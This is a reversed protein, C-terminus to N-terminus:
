PARYAHVPPGSFAKWRVRFVRGERLSASRKWYGRANTRVRALEEFGKGKDRFEVTVTTAGTAPRVLGWLAVKRAGKQDAVLPLRFGDYALKKRGNAFRLGSEFGGFRDAGSRQLDDRMLYQSFAKVRPNDYAIKESIARYENQRAQSVGLIPDPTSQIGFETLYIPLRRQKSYRDLAKTLRSLVGITVDVKKPRYFPGERTTYPHHAWGDLEVRAGKFFQKVFTIPAVINENGRPSTEGALITDGGNGSKQLGKRAAEYLGRYLTPSFPKGKAYQPLLFQPQNPENWITWTDVFDRYRTGAAQVFRGFRTADPKFLHGSKSATAWRPVPGTVTPIVEIGRATAEGMVADIVTWDYGKSTPDTEDLNGPKAKADNAKVVNNWYVLIRMRKVGLASIEDLTRKRQATSGALMERPAEFITFQNKSASAPAPAAALALAAAGAAFLSTPRRM